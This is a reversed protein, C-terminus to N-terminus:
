LAMQMMICEKGMNRAMKGDLVFCGAVSAKDFKYVERIEVNALIKEEVGPLMFKNGAKLLFVQLDEVEESLPSFPLENEVANSIKLGARDRLQGVM